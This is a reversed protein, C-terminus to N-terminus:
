FVHFHLIKNKDNKEEPHETGSDKDNEVRSNGCNQQPIKIDYGEKMPRKYTGNFLYFVLYTKLGTGGYCKHYFIKRLDPILVTVMM